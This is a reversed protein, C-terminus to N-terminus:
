IDDIDLEEGDEGVIIKEEKKEAVKCGEPKIKEVVTGLVRAREDFAVEGDSEEEEDSEEDAEKLWNIIVMAKEIIQKAFDREVYKKSPKEGWAIIVEETVVDQDYLAKIIHATKPLLVAKHKLILQEIGGLLYKQAKVDGNTFRLLLIRHAEIQKLVDEDFLVDALLLTGKAKLDLREAENLMEKSDGLRDDKKAAIFYQHLMDLREETPKELDKSIILKGIQASVKDDNDFPEPEWDDVDDSSGNEFGGDRENNGNEDNKSPDKHKKVKEVKPPNKIIFASLKHKSDITGANGCAKCKSHIVNRKVSLVTEPNDCATCLVFKRIFGDLIDQLKAADHEGNVIYRENKNDINTQAGLECGFYKTPYTPPRELSKAIDAM